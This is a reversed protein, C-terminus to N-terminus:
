FLWIESNVSWSFSYVTKNNIRMNDAAEAAVKKREKKDYFYAMCQELHMKYCQKLTHTRTHSQVYEKGKREGPLGPSQDRLHTTTICWARLVDPLMFIMVRSAPGQRRPVKGGHISHSEWDSGVAFPLVTFFFYKPIAKSEVYYPMSPEGFCDTSSLAM